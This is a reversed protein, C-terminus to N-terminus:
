RANVELRQVGAPSTGCRHAIGQLLAFDFPKELMGEPICGALDASPTEALAGFECTLVVHPLSLNGAVRQRCLSSLLHGATVVLTASVVLLARPAAAFLRTRLAVELQQATASELVLFGAGEIARRMLERM